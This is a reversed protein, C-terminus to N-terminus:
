EIESDSDGMYGAEGPGTNEEYFRKCGLATAVSCNYIQPAGDDELVRFTSGRVEPRIALWLTHQSALDASSTPLVRHAGPLLPLGGPLCCQTMMDGFPVEIRIHGEVQVQSFQEDGGREKLGNASVFSVIIGLRSAAQATHFTEEGPGYSPGRRSQVIATDGDPSITFIRSDHDWLRSVQSTIPWKSNIDYPWMYYRHLVGGVTPQSSHTGEPNGAGDATVQTSSDRAM